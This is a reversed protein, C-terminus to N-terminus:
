FCVDKRSVTNLVGQLLNFRTTICLECCEAAAASCECWDYIKTVATQPDHPSRDRRILQRVSM